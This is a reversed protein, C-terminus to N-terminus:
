LHTVIQSAIWCAIISKLVIGIILIFLGWKIQMLRFALIVSYPLFPVIPVFSASIVIWRREGLFWRLIKKAIHKGPRLNNNSLYDQAIKWYFLIRRSFQRRKLLKVIWGAGFYLFSTSVISKVIAMSVVVWFPIGSALYIGIGTLPNVAFVFHRWM